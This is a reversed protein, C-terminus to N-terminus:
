ITTLLQRKRAGSSTLRSLKQSLSSLCFVSSLLSVASLFLLVFRTTHTHTAKRTYKTKDEAKNHYVRVRNKDKFGVGVRARVGLGLKLGGIRVGVRVRVGVRTRVGVM